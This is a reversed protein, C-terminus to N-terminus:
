PEYFKGQQLRAVVAPDRLDLHWWHSCGGACRERRRREDALALLALLLRFTKPGEDAPLRAAQGLRQRLPGKALLVCPTFTPRLGSRAIAPGVDADRAGAQGVMMSLERLAAGQLAPPLAAFWAEGDPAPVVGQALQNLYVLSPPELFVPPEAAM